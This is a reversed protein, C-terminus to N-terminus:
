GEGIRVLQEAGTPSSVLFAYSMDVATITGEIHKLAQQFLFARAIYAATKSRGAVMLACWHCNISFKVVSRERNSYSVLSILENSADAASTM